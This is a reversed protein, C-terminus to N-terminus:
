RPEAWPAQRRVLSLLVPTALATNDVVIDARQWPLCSALYHRQAHVYRALSRHDPDPESGDRSALRRATEGFGVDLFISLDWAGALEDRHLFIGDLLLVAGAPADALPPRLVQDTELDHGVPRYRRSGGPGLPTLVEAWLRPYDYSDSWFGVPSTRGRRYRIQRVHHFDDVRVRIVPRGRRRLLGALEDAFCTKGAGDVGDVGVRVCDAETPPILGAILEMLRGRAPWSRPM